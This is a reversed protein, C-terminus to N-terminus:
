KLRAADAEAKLLAAMRPDTDDLGGTLRAPDPPMFGKLLPAKLVRRGDEGTDQQRTEQMRKLEAIFKETTGPTLDNLVAEPTVGPVPLDPANVPQTHAKVVNNRASLRATATVFQEERERATNIEAQEAITPAYKINSGAIQAAGIIMNVVSAQGEAILADKVCDFFGAAGNFRPATVYRDFLHRLVAQGSPTNFVERYLGAETEQLDYRKQLTELQEPTPGADTFPNFNIM